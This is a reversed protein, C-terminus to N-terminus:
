IKEKSQNFLHTNGLYENLRNHCKLGGKRALVAKRNWNFTGTGPIYGPKKLQQSHWRQGNNEKKFCYWVDKQTHSQKKVWVESKSLKFVQFYFIQGYSVM